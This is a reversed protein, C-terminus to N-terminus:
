ALEPLVSTGPGLRDDPEVFEAAAEFDSPMRLTALVPSDFINTGWQEHAARLAEQETEAYALQIQLAM